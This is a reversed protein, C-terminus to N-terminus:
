PGTNNELQQREAEAQATELQRLARRREQAFIPVVPMDQRKLAESIMASEPEVVQRSLYALWVMASDSQKVYDTIADYTAGPEEASRMHLIAWAQEAESMQPIGQLLDEVVQQKLARMEPDTIVDANLGALRAQAIMRTATGTAGLDTIWEQIREATPAPGQIVCNRATSIGGTALPVFNGARGVVPNVILRANFLIGVGPNLYRLVGLGHLDLRTDVILREGPGLTLSSSLDVVVPTIAGISQGNITPTPTMMARPHIFSDDGIAIPFRTTNWITIEANIPDLMGFRAPEIKLRVDIWPSRELDVAWLAEPFRECYDKLAQGTSTPLPQAELKSLQRGAALAAMSGPNERIIEQLARTPNSDAVLALGCSAIPMEEALPTLLQRALEADGSRAAIFGRAIAADESDTPLADILAQAQAPDPGFIAAILALTGASSDVTSDSSSDGDGAEQSEEQQSQAQSFAAEIREFSAAAADLDSESDLVSLRILEIDVPVAKPMAPVQSIDLGADVATDRAEHFALFYEDLAEIVQLTPISRGTSALGMTWSRYAHMPMLERFVSEGIYVPQSGLWSDVVGFQQNSRAFASESALLEALELRSLPDLPQARVVNILASGQRVTDSGREIVIDMLMLAAQANAPDLRAAEVVWRAQAAPEVLEGALAAAQSAVRSRLPDSMQRGNASELLQELAYFREDLTNYKGLRLSILDLSAQDDAVGTELYSSLAAELAEVDDLERALEVRLKWLDPNDTDLQTAQELLISALRLPHDTEEAQPMTLATLAARAFEDALVEEPSATRTEQAQAQGPLIVLVALMLGALLANNLTNIMPIHMMTGSPPLGSCFVPNLHM